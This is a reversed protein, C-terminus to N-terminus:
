VIKTCRGLFLALSHQIGKFWFGNKRNMMVGLTTFCHNSAFENFAEIIVITIDGILEHHLRTFLVCHSLNFNASSVRKLHYVFSGDDELSFITCM